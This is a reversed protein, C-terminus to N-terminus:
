WGLPATLFSERGTASPNEVTLDLLRVPTVTGFPRCTEPPLEPEPRNSIAPRIRPTREFPSGQQLKLQESRSHNGVFAIMAAVTGAGFPTTTKARWEAAEELKGEGYLAFWKPRAEKYQKFVDELKKLADIEAQGRDAKRFAALNGEIEKYWKAEAQHNDSAKRNKPFHSFIHDYIKVISQQHTSRFRDIFHTGPVPDLKIVAVGAGDQGRNHQKEMLLYLKNLAYAPTHYKELYFDLPKLLRILAIGCEHKIADSM